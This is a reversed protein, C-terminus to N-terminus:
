ACRELARLRASRARPNRQREDASPREPKPTLCRFSRSPARGLERFALKVRRDELSHFAIFVARGGPALIEPLDRLLADLEALENNVLIRLAQFTRTAPDKHRERTPVARAVVSALDRTTHLEGQSHAHRIARAIRGAYREEGYERLVHALEEESIEELIEALSAGQSPDMRMDLPGEHRLSFGRQPEDLQMSSVGLDCLLGDCSVLGFSSLIARTESFVGHVVTVREGFRALRDRAKSLAAEDRDIGILRGDPSSAILIQEAHGGLGLTVDCYVRGPRPALLAIAESVMVPTHLAPIM